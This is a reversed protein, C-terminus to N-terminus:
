SRGDGDDADDDDDDDDIRFENQKIKAHPSSDSKRARIQM